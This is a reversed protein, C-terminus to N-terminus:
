LFVAAATGRPWASLANKEFGPQTRHSASGWGSRAGPHGSVAHNHFTPLVATIAASRLNGSNRVATAISGMTVNSPMVEVQAVTYFPSDKKEHLLYIEDGSKIHLLTKGDLHVKRRTNSCQVGIANTTSMNEVFLQGGTCRFRVHQRSIYEKLHFEGLGENLGKLINDGEKISVKGLSAINGYLEYLIPKQEDEPEDTVTPDITEDLDSLLPTKDADILSEADKDDTKSLLNVLNTKKANLINEIAQQRTSVGEREMRVCDKCKGTSNLARNEIIMWKEYFGSNEKKWMTGVKKWSTSYKKKNCAVCTQTQETQVNVPLDETQARPHKPVKSGTKQRKAPGGKTNSVTTPVNLKMKAALTQKEHTAAYKPQQGKKWMAAVRSGVTEAM